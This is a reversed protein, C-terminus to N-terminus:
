KVCERLLVLGDCGCGVNPGRRAEEAKSEDEDRRERGARLLILDPACRSLGKCFSELAPVVVEQAMEVITVEVQLLHGTQTGARREIKGLYVALQLQVPHSPPHEFDLELVVTIGPAATRCNREERLELGLFAIFLEFIGRVGRELEVRLLFLKEVRAVQGEVLLAGIPLKAFRQLAFRTSQSAKELRVGPVPPPLLDLQPAHDRREAKALVAPRILDAAKEEIQRGCLLM